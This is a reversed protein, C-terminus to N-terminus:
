DDGLSLEDYEGKTMKRLRIQINIGDWQLEEETLDETKLEALYGVYDLMEMYGRILASTYGSDHHPEIEWVKIELDDDEPVKVERGEWDYVKPDPKMYVNKSYDDDLSGM